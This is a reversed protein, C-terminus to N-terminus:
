RSLWGVSVTSAGDRLGRAYDLRLVADRGPVRLRLGAGLDAVLPAVTPDYSGRWARAVDVFTAVGVAAMPLRSLWRRQEVSAFWLRRGFGAGEVIGQSTLPHARLPPSTQFVDGAAPWVSLPAAASAAGAGITGVTVFGRDATSSSATVRAESRAFRRGAAGAWWMRGTAALSVRDGLLRREAGASTTVTRRARDWVDLGGELDLRLAPTLWSSLAIAGHRQEERLPTPTGAVAFHQVGWWAEVRWVGPVPGATPVALALGVRPRNEWWRWAGSWLEGQGTWGPVAVAVERGIAAGAATAMWEMAAAPRGRREFVGLTAEAWGDDGPSLRLRADAFGPIDAARRAALLYDRATLLRNPALPLLSAVRAYSTRRLGEIRMGELRPRDLANWARLAGAVDDQVFRSSGLVDWAYGNSPDVAVARRALTAADRYRQQAFRIAALESTARASAGCAPGSEILLRATADLGIAPARAIADDLARDCAAAAPRSEPAPAASSRSAPAPSPRSAPPPSSGSTPPPAGPAPRVRLMWFDTARWAAELSATAVRRSPGWTPDHIVVHTDDTGVAVVFHYPPQRRWGHRELLLIAPEGAAIQQRLLGVSGRIVSTDWGRARVADALRAAEIGGARRDVLPAFQQVDARRDGWFRFVMAAAAGGCLAETQPLFPVALAPRGAPQAAAPASWATAALTLAFLLPLAARDPM